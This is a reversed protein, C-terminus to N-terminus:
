CENYEWDPDKSAAERIKEARFDEVPEFHVQIDPYVKSAGIASQPNDQNAEEISASDEIWMVKRVVFCLREGGMQTIMTMGVVPLFPLDVIKLYYSDAAPDHGPLTIPLILSILM